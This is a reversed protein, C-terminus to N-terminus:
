GQDHQKGSERVGAPNHLVQNLQTVCEVGPSDKTGKIVVHKKVVPRTTRDHRELVIVKRIVAWRAKLERKLAISQPM